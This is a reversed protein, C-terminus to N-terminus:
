PLVTSLMDLIDSAFMSSSSRNKVYEEATLGHLYTALSAALFPETKRALLGAIMGCLVDGSGGKALAHNGSRNIYRKEDSVVVTRADKLVITAPKARDAYHMLDTQITAVPTQILRSMEKLHPTLIKNKQFINVSLASALNIADADLVVPKDEEKIIVTEFLLRATPSTGLGPGCAIVDAWQLAETLMDYIEEKKTEDHYCALLAEPLKELLMDRNNQHTIVKVLGCGMEYAARAAFYAAGGMNKSGAIILVKGYSGKNSYSIRQPFLKKVDERDYSITQLCVEELAIKPFGIDAVQVTGAYKAGPFFLLGSKLTGFTITEKARIAIGLVQGNTADIGSPVDVSVVPKQMANVAQIWEAYIGTIERSLGIGFIADIVFTYQELEEKSFDDATRVSLSLKKVIALQVRMEESAKQMNGLLLFTVLYGHESLMRGAAVGDVGNNGMGCIILVSDEKKALEEVRKAVALAAREMLVLSPIGIQEISIGDIKKAERANVIYQM